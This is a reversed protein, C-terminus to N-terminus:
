GGCIPIFKRICQRGATNIDRRDMSSTPQRLSDLRTVQNKLTAHRVPTGIKLTLDARSVLMKTQSYRKVPNPVSQVGPQTYQVMQARGVYPMPINNYGGYGGRHGNYGNSYGRRYGGTRGQGCGDSTTMHNIHPM